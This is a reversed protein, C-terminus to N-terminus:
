NNKAAILLNIVRHFHFGLVAFSEAVFLCVFLCIFVRKDSSDIMAVNFLVFFITGFIFSVGSIIHFIKLIIRNKVLKSIKKANKEEIDMLFFGSFLVGIIAVAAMSIAAAFNYHGEKKRVERSILEKGSVGIESASGNKYVIYEGEDVVKEKKDTELHVEHPSVKRDGPQPLLSIFAVMAFQIAIIVLLKKWTGMGKTIHVRGAKKIDIQRLDSENSFSRKKANPIYGCRPCEGRGNFRTLLPDDDGKAEYDCKPCIRPPGDVSNESAPLEKNVGLMEDLEEGKQRTLFFIHMPVYDPHYDPSEDFVMKQYIQWIKEAKAYLEAALEQRGTLLYVRSLQAATQGIRWHDDPFHKRCIQYARELLPLAENPRNQNILVWAIRYLSDAVDKHGSGLKSERISLGKRYLSEAGQLNNIYPEVLKDGFANIAPLTDISGQGFKRESAEFAKRASELGPPPVQYKIRM